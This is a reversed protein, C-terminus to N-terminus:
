FVARVKSVAADLSSVDLCELWNVSLYEECQRLEFAAPM